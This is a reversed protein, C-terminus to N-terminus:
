FLNTVDPASTWLSELASEPTAASAQRVMGTLSTAGKKTAAPQAASFVLDLDDHSSAEKVFPNGEKEEKGEEKDEEKAALKQSLDAISAAMKEMQEMMFSMDAAPAAAPAAAMPACGAEPAVPAVPAAPDVVPAVPAEPAVPAAAAQDVPQAVAAPDVPAVPAEVKVEAAAEEAESAIRRAFGEQRALIADISALPLRILDAANAEIIHQEAGPLMRQSAVLCRIAKKELEAASKIAAESAQRLDAVNTAPDRDKVDQTHIKATDATSVPTEGFEAPGGIEYKAAPNVDGTPRAGNMTYLDNDGAEAATKDTLRNRSM